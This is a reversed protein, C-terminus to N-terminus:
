IVSYQLINIIGNVCIICLFCVFIFKKIKCQLKFLVTTCCSASRVLHMWVDQAQFLSVKSNYDTFCQLTCLLVVVQLPPMCVVICVLGHAHNSVRM